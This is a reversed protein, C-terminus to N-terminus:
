VAAGAASLLERLFPLSLVVLEIRGATEVWGAIQGEGAGRCLEAATSTTWAIGLARLVATVTEEGVLSSLASAFSVAESVGPLCAGLLLLCTGLLLYPVFERRTERVTLVATLACLAIGAILGIDRM